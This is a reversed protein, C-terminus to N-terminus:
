PNKSLVFKMLHINLTVLFHLNFTAVTEVQDNNEHDWAKMLVKTGSLLADFQKYNM